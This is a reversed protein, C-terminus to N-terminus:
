LTKSAQKGLLLFLFPGLALRLGDVLIARAKQDMKRSMSAYGFFGAFRGALAAHLYYHRAKAYNPKDSSEYYKAYALNVEPVMRLSKAEDIYRLAERHREGGQKMLARALYLFTIADPVMSAAKRYNAAARELDSEVDDGGLEYAIGRMLYGSAHSPTHDSNILTESLALLEKASNSRIANRADNYTDSHKM